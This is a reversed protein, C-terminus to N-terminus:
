YNLDHADCTHDVLFHAIPPCVEGKIAAPHIPVQHVPVWGMASSWHPYTGQPGGNGYDVCHATIPQHPFQRDRQWPCTHIVTKLKDFLTRFLPLAEVYHGAYCCFHNSILMSFACILLNCM